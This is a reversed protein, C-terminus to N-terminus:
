DLLAQALEEDESMAENISEPQMRVVQVSVTLQEMLALIESVTGFIYERRREEIPIRFFWHTPIWAGSRGLVFEAPRMAMDHPDYGQQYILYPGRTDRPQIEVAMKLKALSVIRSASYHNTLRQFRVPNM